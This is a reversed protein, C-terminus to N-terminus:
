ESGVGRVMEVSEIRSVPVDELVKWWGYVAKPDDDPEMDLNELNLKLLIGRRLFRHSRKESVYVPERIVGSSKIRLFSKLSTMHYYVPEPELYVRLEKDQM